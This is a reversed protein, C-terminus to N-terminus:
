ISLMELYMQRRKPSMSLIEQESWGITRALTYVDRLIRKAWSNIEMWLYSAIDFRAEWQHSCNPCSIKMRIDAQTDLEEIRRSLANMVKDPLDNIKYNEQNSQAELICTILLKRPDSPENSNAIANSIDISNPLRFRINFEDVKLDFEKVPEFNQVPLLLIDEINTEWEMRESCAPCDAMNKFRPGFIWERLQLLRADREGISLKAVDDSEMEPCAQCLLILTKQILPQNMEREWITLLESTSVPRM